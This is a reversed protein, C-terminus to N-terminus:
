AAGGGPVATAVPFGASLFRFLARNDASGTIHGKEIVTLNEPRYIGSQRQLIIYQDHRALLAHVKNNPRRLFEDEFNLCTKLAEPRSRADAAALASYSSETFLADLAAGAFIPRYEHASDFQAHHLNTIWGGLSIGSVVVRSSSALTRLIEEIVVVSGALLTAFRGLDRIARYYERKSRNYPSCTAVINVGALADSERKGAGLIKRIRRYYPIDGSGHHFLLTPATEGFWREVSYDVDFQETTTELSATYAGPGNISPVTCNMEAALETLPRSQSGESFFKMANGYITAISTVLTDM